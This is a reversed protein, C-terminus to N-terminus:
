RQLDDSDHASEKGKQYMNAIFIAVAFTAVIIALVEIVLEIFIMKSGGDSMGRGGGSVRESGVGASVM